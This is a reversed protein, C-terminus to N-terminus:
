VGKIKYGANVIIKGLLREVRHAFSGDQVYGDPMKAYWKDILEDTLCSSLIKFDVMFMTGGIFSNNKLLWKKSGCMKYETEKLISINKIITEDSSILSNVLEDRWPAGKEPRVVGGCDLFNESKKTHLKILYDYDRNRLKKFTLLFPGIDQGKNPYKTINASPFSKLIDKSIDEVEDCLTIHLDFQADLSKLKKEFYRWLDTHYIHLIIGIMNKKNMQTIDAYKKRPYRKKYHNVDSSWANYLNEKETNVCVWGECLFRDKIHSNNVLSTPKPLKKIHGSNSWWFNGSYHFESRCDREKTAKILQRSLWSPNKTLNVGSADHKELDSIRDQWKEINFYSLYEVWDGIRLLKKPSDLAVDRIQVFPKNAYSAGKTHLYLVKFKETQSDEWIKDLTPFECKEVSKTENFFNYKHMKKVGLLSADGCVNLNIEHVENYLGCLNIKDLLKTLIENFHGM